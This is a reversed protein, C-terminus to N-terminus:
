KDAIKELADAIRGFQYAIDYLADGVTEGGKNTPNLNDTLNDISNSLEILGNYTTTEIQKM